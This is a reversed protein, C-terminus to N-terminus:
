KAERARLLKRLQQQTRWRRQVDRRERRKKDKMNESHDGLRLHKPNVCQPVHCKHLVFLGEPIAGKHIIWSDRHALVTRGNMAFRGNGFDKDTYGRWIWCGCSTKFVLALFREKLNADIM